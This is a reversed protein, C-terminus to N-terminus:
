GEPAIELTLGDLAESVHIQCSLRSSEPQYYESGELLVLEDESVPPLQDVFDPNIFVHCTACACSGGCIAEIDPIGSDRIVEMVTQDPEADLVQEEGARTTVIIKPM